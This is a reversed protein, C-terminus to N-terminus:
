SLVEVLARAAYDVEEVTTWRGLGFRLASRAEAESRDMALLVHSPEKGTSCASGTSCAVGRADLAEVIARGDAGELRVSLNGALRHHLSGNVQVRAGLGARLRARLRDRLAGVRAAEAPGEYSAIEAAMGMGVIGPVNLTGPRRAGEQGGGALWPVLRVRPGRERVYLAGIGKPGYMKHASLSVLDVSMAEVDLAVKGAAQVADTHLLVGRARTIAGIEALPQVTGIENNALMVSVLLTGPEIAEAIAEPDVLGDGDVPVRTVRLGSAELEDATELVAKHEITTTVIHDGLDRYFAAVGRLALNNSETAGSTFVIERPSAGILGAVQARAREVAASAERGFAHPSGPNGFQEQLYPMMADLVRPDVPTTAHHDLYIM